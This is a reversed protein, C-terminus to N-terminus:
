KKIFNFLRHRVAIHFLGKNTIQKSKKMFKNKQDSTMISEALNSLPMGISTVFSSILNSNMEIIVEKNKEDSFYVKIDSSYVISKQNTNLSSKFKSIKDCLYYKNEKSFLKYLNNLESVLENRGITIKM